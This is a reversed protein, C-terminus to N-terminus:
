GALRCSPLGAEALLLTAQSGVRPRLDVVTLSLNLQLHRDSHQAGVRIWTFCSFSKKAYLILITAGLETYFFIIESQQQPLTAPPHILPVSPVQDKTVVEQGAEM